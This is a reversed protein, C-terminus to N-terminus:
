KFFTSLIFFRLIDAVPLLLHSTVLYCSVEEVLLQPVTKEQIDILNPGFVLERKAREESDLGVKLAKISTWSPDIWDDCLLFKDKQPHYYLRLYRYDLFNLYPIIPDDEEDFGLVESKSPRSGFVSSTEYGYRAKRVNHVTMEGWQNQYDKALRGYARRRIRSRVEIVVWNCDHLSGSRGVLKIRWNPVWRFLLYCAGLSIMCLGLYISYGLANTNFGAVVITLDESAIYVKQSRRRDEFADSTDSRTSGRRLLQQSEGNTPSFTSSKQRGRGIRGSELDHNEDFDDLKAQEDVNEEDEIIVQDEAWDPSEDEEQFYTFSAVSESRHRRNAFGTVSSPVSESM